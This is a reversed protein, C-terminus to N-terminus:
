SVNTELQKSPDSTKKPHSLAMDQDGGQLSLHAPGHGPVTTGCPVTVQVLVCKLNDLGIMLGACM